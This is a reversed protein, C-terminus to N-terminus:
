GRERFGKIEGKIQVRFLLTTNMQSISKINSTNINESESLIALSEKEQFMLLHIGLRSLTDSM